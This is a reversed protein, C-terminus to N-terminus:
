LGKKYCLDTNKNACKVCKEKKYEEFNAIRM